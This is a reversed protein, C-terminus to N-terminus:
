NQSSLSMDNKQDIYETLLGFGLATCENLSFGGGYGKLGVPDTTSCCLPTLIDIPGSSRSFDNMGKRCVLSIM